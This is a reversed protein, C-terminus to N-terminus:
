TVIIDLLQMITVALKQWACNIYARYLPEYKFINLMYEM